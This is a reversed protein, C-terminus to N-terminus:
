CKTNCPPYLPLTIRVLFAVSYSDTTLFKSVNLLYHQLNYCHDCSSDSFCYSDDIGDDPIVHHVNCHIVNTISYFIVNFLVLITSFDM